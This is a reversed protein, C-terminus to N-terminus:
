VDAAVPPRMGPAGRWYGDCFGAGALPALRAAAAEADLAGDLVARLVGLIEATGERQPSVRVARAGLAAIGPLAGILNCTRASQTQIGNLVLFPEGEQTALALGEPHDGCRFGCDDKTLGHHRATFCRASFALPLRGFAFVELVPPADCGALIAGITERDLEVPPVWRQAGLRCLWALTEANYVNLHPGIVFPAGAALLSVAAMSNAEVPFQEQACIRALAALESQAEILALTSLVPQKGAAALMRAVDLWDELGLARRKACVVEGLYVTDVPWAAAEAYFDLVAARDWFPLIPGLAIDLGANM